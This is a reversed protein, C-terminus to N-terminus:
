KLESTMLTIEKIDMEIDDKLLNVHLEAARCAPLLM